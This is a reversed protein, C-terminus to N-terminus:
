SWVETEACTADTSTTYALVACNAHGDGRLQQEFQEATWGELVARFARLTGNHTVLLVRKAAFEAERTRLFLRV